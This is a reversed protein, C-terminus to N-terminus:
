ICKENKHTNTNDHGDYVWDLVTVKLSMGRFQGRSVDNM